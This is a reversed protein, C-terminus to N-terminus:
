GALFTVLKMLKLNHSLFNNWIVYKPKLIISHTLWASTSTMYVSFSRQLTDSNAWWALGPLDRQPNDVVLLLSPLSSKGIITQHSSNTM